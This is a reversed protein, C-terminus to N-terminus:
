GGFTKLLLPALISMITGGVCGCIISIVAVKIRLPLVVNEKFKLLDKSLDDADDSVDQILLEIRSVMKTLDKKSQKESSAIKEMLNEKLDNLDKIM